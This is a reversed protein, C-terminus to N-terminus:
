TATSPAWTNACANKAPSPAAKKPRSSNPAPSTPRRPSATLQARLPDNEAAAQRRQCLAADRVGIIADVAWSMHNLMAALRTALDFQAKRDAVTYKARPDLVVKLKTTYVKDGKTM